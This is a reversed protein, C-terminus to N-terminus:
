IAASRPVWASAQEAPDFGWHAAALELRQCDVLVRLHPAALDRLVQEVERPAALLGEGTPGMPVIALELRLDEATAALADLSRELNALAASRNLVPGIPGSEPHCTHQLAWGAPVAYCRTGVDAARLLAERFARVAARRLDEEGAALNPLVQTVELFAAIALEARGCGRACGGPLPGLALPDLGASELARMAAEQTMAGALSETSVLVSM